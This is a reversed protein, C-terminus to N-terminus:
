ENDLEEEEYDEDEKWEFGKAEFAYNKEIFTQKEKDTLLEAIGNVLMRLFPLHAYECFQQIGTPKLSKTIDISGFYNNFTDQEKQSLTFISDQSYMAFVKEILEKYPLEQMSLTGYNKIWDEERIYCAYNLDTHNHFFNLQWEICNEEIYLYLFTPLIRKLKNKIMYHDLTYIDYLDPDEQLIRQKYLIDEEIEEFGHITFIIWQSEFKEKLIHQFGGKEKEWNECDVISFIKEKQLKKILAEKGITKPTAWYNTFESM